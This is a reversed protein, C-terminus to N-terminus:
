NLLYNKWEHFFIIIMKQIANVTVVYDGYINVSGNPKWVTVVPIARESYYISKLICKKMLWELELDIFKRLCFFSFFQRQM